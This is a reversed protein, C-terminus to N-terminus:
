ICVEALRRGCRLCFTAGRRRSSSCGTCDTSGNTRWYACQAEAVPADSLDADLEDELAAVGIDHGEVDMGADGGAAAAGGGVGNGGVTGAGDVATNAGRVAMSWHIQEPSRVPTARIAPDMVPVLPRRPRPSTYRTAPATRPVPRRMTRASERRGAWWDRLGPLAVGALAFMGITALAAIVGFAVPFVVEM